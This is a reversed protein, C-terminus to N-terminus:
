WKTAEREMEQSDQVECFDHYDREKQAEREVEDAMVRPWRLGAPTRIEECWFSSSAGSRPSFLFVRGNIEHRM